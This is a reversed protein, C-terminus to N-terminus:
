DQFVEKEAPATFWFESGEGFVSDVGIKGGFRQVISECISLGLGTGRVYPDFKTFRDFVKPLNDKEIGKGTDRVFCRIGNEEHRYGMVISGVSTFKIANNLFNSIVQTFRLKETYLMYSNDPLECILEVGEPMRYQYTHTIDEFIRCVDLEEFHFDMQGAEIKSIDLIDNVLQLLLENNTEIIRYYNEIDERDETEMLLNSFGVIANLPTRIEHSMNALFASKLRNSEDAQKRLRVLEQQKEIEKTIFQSTGVIKKGYLANSMVKGVIHTWEYKEAYYTLVKIDMSEAAGSGLDEIVSLFLSQHDAHVYKIIYETLTYGKQYFVSYENNSYMKGTEPIFEWPIIGGATFTLQLMTKAEEQEQKELMMDTIDWRLGSIISPNGDADRKFVVAVVEFWRHEQDPSVRLRIRERFSEIKRQIIGQLRDSVCQRDGPHLIQLYQVWSYGRFYDYEDTPYSLLDQQIDYDWLVMKGSRVVLDMRFAMDKLEQQTADPAIFKYVGVINQPHGTDDKIVGTGQIYIWEPENNETRLQLKIEFVERIGKKVDEMADEFIKQFAPLVCESIFMQLLMYDEPTCTNSNDVYIKDSAIEYKFRQLGGGEYAKSFTAQCMNVLDTASADPVSKNKCKKRSFFGYARLQYCCFSLLFLLAVVLFLLLFVLLSM